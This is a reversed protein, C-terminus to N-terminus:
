RSSLWVALGLAPAGVVATVAVATTLRIALVPAPLPRGTRMALENSLFRRRAAVAVVAAGVVPVVGVLAMWAPAGTLLPSGIVAAGTVLGALATRTYALLTRENALTFREDPPSGEAPWWSPDPM